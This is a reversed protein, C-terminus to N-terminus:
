LDSWSNEGGVLVASSSSSLTSISAIELNNLRSTSLNLYNQHRYKLLDGDILRTLRLLKKYDDADFYKFLEDGYFVHSKSTNIDIDDFNWSAINDNLLYSKNSIYWRNIKNLIFPPLTNFRPHNDTLRDRVGFGNSGGSNGGITGGVNKLGTRLDLSLDSRTHNQNHIDYKMNDNDTSTSLIDEDKKPNFLVYSNDEYFEYDIDEFDSLVNDSEVVPDLKYKLSPNISM